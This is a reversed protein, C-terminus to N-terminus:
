RDRGEAWDMTQSLLDADAADLHTVRGAADTIFDPLRVVTGDDLRASNGIFTMGVDGSM